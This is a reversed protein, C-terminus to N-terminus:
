SVKGKKKRSEVRLMDFFEELSRIQELKSADVQIAGEQFVVTTGGGQGWEGPTTASSTGRAGVPALTRAPPVPTLPSLTLASNPRSLAHQAASVMGKAVEIAPKVAAAANAQIGVGMGSPLHKGVEDRFKRSPSRIGLFNKVGDIAGKAAEVAQSVVEGAAAKVGDAMGRMMDGGVSRLRGAMGSLASVIKGPLERFFGIVARIGNSVATKMGNMATSTGTRIANMANTVASQAGSMGSRIVSLVANIVTTVLSRIANWVSTFISRVANMGATVVSRVGAMGATVVSRVANMGATVISRIGAWVSTFIGRIANWVSTFVSRVANMGATVVSRVGAMSSTVISRIGAWASTFIGRIAAWVSTFVMRVGTMGTTVVMRVALIGNSVLSRIANWVVSVITRIGNWAASWGARIGNMASMIGNRIGAMGSTVFGHIISLVNSVVNAAGQFGARFLNPILGLATRLAGMARGIWIVNIINWAAMLAAQVIRVLADWAAAWNGTFIATVLDVLGQIVRVINQVASVVHGLVTSFVAVVIPILAQFAPGLVSLIFEVVPQLAVLLEAFAQGIQKVGDILPPMIANTLNVFLPVLTGMIADVIPLLATTVASFADVLASILTATLGARDGFLELAPVLLSMILQAIPTLIPLVAGFAALMPLLANTVLASFVPALVQAAALLETGLATILATIQPQATSLATAFPTLLAGLAPATAVALQGLLVMGQTIIQFMPTMEAAVRTAMQPLLQFFATLNNQVPLSNLAATVGDIMTAAATTSATAFASIVTGMQTLQLLFRGIAGMVVATGANAVSFFSTLKAQWEETALAANVSALGAALSQITAGGAREAAAAISNFIGVTSSLVSGLAQAASVGQAVWADFSGDSTIRATWADFKAMLESFWEGLRPLHAAGAAGLELFGQVLAGIGPAMAVILKHVGGLLVTFNTIGRTSTLVDAIAQAWNGFGTAIQPLIATAIPFLENAVQTIAPRAAAWFNASIAANMEQLQPNLHALQNSADAFATSLVLASAGAAGLLAPAMLALKGVQGLSTTLSFVSGVASAAVTGIAGISTALTTLGRGAVALATFTGALSTASIATAVVAGRVAVMTKQIGSLSRGANAAQAMARQLSATAGLVPALMSRGLDDFLALFNMSASRRFARGFTAGGIMGTSKLSLLFRALDREAQDTEAGIEIYAEGVKGM